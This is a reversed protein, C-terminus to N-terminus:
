TRRLILCLHRYVSFDAVSEFGAVRLLNRLRGLPQSRNSFNAYFTVVQGKGFVHGDEYANTSMCRSTITQDNRPVILCYYGGRKLNNAAAQVVKRRVRNPIVDLVCACLVADLGLGGQSFEKDNFLHYRKKRRNLERVYDALTSEKAGIKHVRQVQLETDVLFVSRFSRRLM